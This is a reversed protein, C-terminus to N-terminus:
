PLPPRLSAATPFRRQRHHEHQGTLGLTMPSAQVARFYHNVDQFSLFELISHHKLFGGGSGAWGCCKVIDRALGDSTGTYSTRLSITTPGEPEFGVGFVHTRLNAVGEAQGRNEEFRVTSLASLDITGLGSATPPPRHLIITAAAAALVISSLFWRARPQRRNMDFRRRCQVVSSSCPQRGERRDFPARRNMPIHGADQVQEQSLLPPAPRFM